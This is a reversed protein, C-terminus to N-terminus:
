YGIAGVDGKALAWAVQEKTTHQPALVVIAGVFIILLIGVASLYNPIIGWFLWSLLRKM